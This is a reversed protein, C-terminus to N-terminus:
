IPIPKLCKLFNAKTYKQITEKKQKLEEKFKLVNSELDYLFRELGGKSKTNLLICALKGAYQSYSDPLYVSFDTYNMLELYIEKQKLYNFQLVSENIHKVDSHLIPSKREDYIQQIYDKPPDTEFYYGKNKLQQLM